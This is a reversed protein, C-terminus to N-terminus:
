TEIHQKLRELGNEFDGGVMSDMSRIYSFIKSLTTHTGTMTWTVTSGAAAPEIDFRTVNQSKFPKLFHLDIVVTSPAEADTITMTGEGVKRNGQWAYSAGVEGDIDSYTTEMDPDLDVWPSWSEWNRFNVIHDYVEAPEADITATRQVQYESM